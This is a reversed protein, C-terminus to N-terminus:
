PITVPFQTPRKAADFLLRLGSAKTNGGCASGTATTGIRTLLKLALVDTTGDWTVQPFPTFSVTAERALAADESLGTICRTEGAAVLVGNKYLEARLDFNTKQDKKEAVGLWAHLDKLEYLTGRTLAASANWTGLAQWPNGGRFALAGSNQGKAAKGTPANYDLTLVKSNAHLYLSRPFAIKRIRSMGDSVYVDGVGDTAVAQVYDFGANTPPGGDGTNSGQGNGAITRIIGARDVQRVRLNNYDAIYLNGAADVAVGNPVCM